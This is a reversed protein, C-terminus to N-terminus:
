IINAEPHLEIGFQDRVATIVAEAVAMVEAGTAGGLNVIVLAQKEYIGARGISRGKWGSRQILWGASLKVRTTDESDPVPYSPIDPYAGRLEELKSVPVIPNMFFSGASGIVKPDPLKGDRIAIVAQRVDRLTPTHGDAEKMVAESLNGYGLSFTGNKKLRYTVATIIYRKNEPLKFISSRYSYACEDLSFVRRSGTQLDITEVESIIDKVESGYAGINQVASAGVEGPIKSLNEAGYWGHSVCYEVFDDWVYGSGAKVTVSDDDESIVTITKISSHLITGPFDRTFVLNSGGGIHLYPPRIKMQCIMGIIELLEEESSYGIFKDTYADIGFTNLDKLSFHDHIEM